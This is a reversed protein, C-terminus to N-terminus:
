ARLFSMPSVTLNFETLKFMGFPFSFRLIEFLDYEKVATVYESDPKSLADVSVGM